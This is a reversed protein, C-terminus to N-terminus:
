YRHKSPKFFKQIVREYSEPTLLDKMTQTMAEAPTFGRIREVSPSIYTPRLGDKTIDMLWIIDSASDALLRYKQESARVAAEAQLREEM